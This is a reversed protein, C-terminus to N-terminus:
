RGASQCYANLENLATAEKPSAAEIEDVSAQRAAADEAHTEALKKSARAITDLMTVYRTRLQQLRADRLAVSAIAGREQDLTQALNALRRSRDGTGGGKSIAADAANIREVLASCEATRRGNCAGATVLLMVSVMSACNRTGTM